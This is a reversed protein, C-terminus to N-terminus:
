EIYINNSRRNAKILIKSNGNPTTPFAGFMINRGAPSGEINAADSNSYYDSNGITCYRAFSLRDSSFNAKKIEDKIKRGYDIRSVLIGNEMEFNIYGEWEPRLIPLGNSDKIPQKNEDLKVGWKPPNVTFKYNRSAFSSVFVCVKEPPVHFKRKIFEACAPILGNAARETDAHTIGMIEGDECYFRIVACDSAPFLLSIDIGFDRLVRDRTEKRIFIASYPKPEDWFSGNEKTLRSNIWRKVDKYTIERFTFPKNSSPQDPMVPEDLGIIHYKGMCTNLKIDFPTDEPFLAKATTLPVDAGIAKVGCTGPLFKGEGILYEVMDRNSTRIRFNQMKIISDNM